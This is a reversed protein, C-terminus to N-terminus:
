QEFAGMNIQGSSNVRPNGNFDELYMTSLCSIESILKSEIRVTDKEVTRM